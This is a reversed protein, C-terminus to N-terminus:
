YFFPGPVQAEGMLSGTGRTKAGKAVPRSLDPRTGAHHEAILRPVPEDIVEARTHGLPSDAQWREVGGGEKDERIPQCLGGGWRGSGDAEELALRRAADAAGEPKGPSRYVGM